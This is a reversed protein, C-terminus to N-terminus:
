SSEKKMNQFQSLQVYLDKASIRPAFTFIQELIENIEEPWVSKVEPHFVTDASQLKRVLVHQTMQSYPKIENLIETFTVGLAWVDSQFTPIRDKMLEPSAWRPALTTLPFVAPSKTSLGFDALCVKMREIDILCNRAAVDAHIVDRSHLHYLGCGLQYFINLKQQMSFSRNQLATILSGDKWLEMVVYNEKKHQYMGYYRCINPHNSIYSFLDGEALYTAPKVAKLAVNCGKYVAQIVNGFNGKGLAKEQDYFEIEDYHIWQRKMDMKERQMKKALALEDFTESRSKKDGMFVKPTAPSQALSSFSGMSGLSNITFQNNTYTGSTSPSLGLSTPDVVGSTPGRFEISSPNHVFMPSVPGGGFSDIMIEFYYSSSELIPNNHMPLDARAPDKHPKPAVLPKHNGIYISEMTPEPPLDLDDGGSNSAKWEAELEPTLNLNVPSEVSNDHSPEQDTSCRQRPFDVYTSMHMFRSKAPRIQSHKGLEMHDYTGVSSAHRNKRKHKELFLHALYALVCCSPLAFVALVIIPILLSSDDDTTSPQGQINTVDCLAWFLPVGIDPRDEHRRCNWLHNLRPVSEEEIFRMCECDLTGAWLDDLCGHEHNDTEFLEVMFEPIYEAPCLELSDTVTYGADTLIKKADHAKESSVPVEVHTDISSILQQKQFTVNAMTFNEIGMQQIAMAHAYTQVFVRGHIITQNHEFDTYLSVGEDGQLYFYTNLARELDVLDDFDSSSNSPQFFLTSSYQILIVLHLPTMSTSNSLINEIEALITENMPGPQNEYLIILHKEEPIEELIPKPSPFISPTSSPHRVEVPANRNWCEYESGTNDYDCEWDPPTEELSCGNCDPHNMIMDRKMEDCTLTCQLFVESGSDECKGENVLDVVKAVCWVKSTQLDVISKCVRGVGGWGSSNDNLDVNFGINTIQDDSMGTNHHWYCGGPAHVIGLLSYTIGLAAAYQRCEYETSIEGGASCELGSELIDGEVGDHLNACAISNASESDDSVEEGYSDYLYCKQSYHYSFALCANGCLEACSEITEGEEVALGRNMWWGNFLYYFGSPCEIETSDISNGYDCASLCSTFGVVKGSNYNGEYQQDNAICMSMMYANATSGDPQCCLESEAQSCLTSLTADGSFDDWSYVNMDGSIAEIEYVYTNGDSCDYCLDNTCVSNYLYCDRVTAVYYIGTCGKTEICHDKCRVLDVGDLTPLDSGGGNSYHDCGTRVHEIWVLTLSQSPSLSPPSSPTASPTYSPSSIPASSPAMVFAEDISIGPLVEVFDLNTDEAFYFLQGPDSHKHDSQLIYTVDEMRRSIEIANGILIDERDVLERSLQQDEDLFDCLSLFAEGGDLSMTLCQDSGALQLYTYEQWSIWQWLLQTSACKATVANREDAPATLDYYAEASLCSLGLGADNGVYALQLLTQHPRITVTCETRCFSDHCQKNKLVCHNTNPFHTFVTCDVRECEKKCDSFEAYFAGQDDNEDLEQCRGDSGTKINCTADWISHDMGDSIPDTFIRCRWQLGPSRWEYATCGKGCLRECEDESALDLIEFDTGSFDDCRKDDLRIFSHTFVDSSTRTRIYCKKSSIKSFTDADVHSVFSWFVTCPDNWNSSDYEYAFCGDGCLMECEEVTVPGTPMNLHEFELSEGGCTGQRSVFGNSEHTHHLCTCQCLAHLSGASRAANIDVFLFSYDDDIMEQFSKDCTLGNVALAQVATICDDVPMTEPNFMQQVVNDDDICVETSQTNCYKPGSVNEYESNVITWGASSFKLYCIKLDGLYTFYLCSSESQCLSQCTEASTVGSESRVDNRHYNVDYEFCGLSTPSSSPPPTAGISSPYECYCLSEWNRFDSNDCSSTEGMQIPTCIGDQAFPAGSASSPTGFGTCAHGAHLSALAVLDNSTLTSQMSSSCEWGRISCVSSCDEGFQGLIWEGTYPSLEGSGEIHQDWNGSSSVAEVCAAASNCRKTCVEPSSHCTQILDSGCAGTGGCTVTCQLACTVNVNECPATGTSSDCILHGGDQLTIMTNLCANDGFCRVTKADMIEKGVCNDYGSGCNYVDIQTMVMQNVVSDITNDCVTTGMARANCYSNWICCSSSECTEQDFNGPSSCYTDADLVSSSANSPLLFSVFSFLCIFFSFNNSLLTLRGWFSTILGDFTM